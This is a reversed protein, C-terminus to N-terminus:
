VTNHIKMIDQVQNLFTMDKKNLKQKEAVDM